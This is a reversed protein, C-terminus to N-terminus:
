RKSHLYELLYRASLIRRKVILDYRIKTIYVNPNNIRQHTKAPQTHRLPYVVLNSHQRVSNKM